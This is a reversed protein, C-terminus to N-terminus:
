HRKPCQSEPVKGVAELNKEGPMMNSKASSNKSPSSLYPYVSQRFKKKTRIKKRKGHYEEPLTRIELPPRKRHDHSFWIKRM